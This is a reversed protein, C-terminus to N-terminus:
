TCVFVVFDVDGSLDDVFTINDNDDMAATVFVVVFVEEFGVVKDDIAAKVIIFGVTLVTFLVSLVAAAVDSLLATLLVLLVVLLAM